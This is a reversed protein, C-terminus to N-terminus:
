KSVKLKETLKKNINYLTRRTKPEDDYDPFIHAYASKLPADIEAQLEDKERVKFDLEKQYKQVKQTVNQIQDRLTIKNNRKKEMKTELHKLIIQYKKLTKKREEIDSEFRKLQERPTYNTERHEQAELAKLKCILVELIYPKARRSYLEHYAESFYLINEQDCFECSGINSFVFDPADKLKFTFEDKEFSMERIEYWAIGIKPMRKSNKEYIIVGLSDVGLCLKTRNKNRIEFFQVGYMNFDQAITLYKVMAERLVMGNHNGWHTMISQEWENRPTTLKKIANDHLTKAIYKKLVDNSRENRFDGHNIKFSYSLLSASLEPPVDFDDNLIAKQVQYVFLSLTKEEILESVCEPFYKVRVEFQDSKM